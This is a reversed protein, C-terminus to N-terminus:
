LTPDQPHSRQCAEAFGHFLQAKAPQSPSGDQSWDDLVAQFQLISRWDAPLPMRKQPVPDVEQHEMTQELLLAFSGFCRNKVYQLAGCFNGDQVNGENAIEIM